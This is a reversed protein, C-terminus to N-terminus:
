GYSIIYEIISAYRVYTHSAKKLDWAGRVHAVMDLFFNVHNLAYRIPRFGKLFAVFLFIVHKLPAGSNIATLERLKALYGNFDLSDGSFKFRAATLSVVVVNGRHNHDRKSVYRKGV